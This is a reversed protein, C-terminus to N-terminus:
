PTKVENKSKNKRQQNEGEKLRRKNKTTQEKLIEKM